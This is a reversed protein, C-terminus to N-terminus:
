LMSERRRHITGRHVASHQVYDLIKQISFRSIEISLWIDLLENLLLLPFCRSMDM